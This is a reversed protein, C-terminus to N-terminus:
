QRCGTPLPKLARAVFPLGCLKAFRGIREGLGNSLLCAGINAERLTALWENVGPVCEESRYRKLTCDADLLLSDIGWAGLRAPTLEVVSKVRYTPILFRLM